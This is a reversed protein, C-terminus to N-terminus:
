VRVRGWGLGGVLGRIQHSITAAKQVAPVTYSGRLGAALDTGTVTADIMVEEEEEEERRLSASLSPNIGRRYQSHVGSICHCDLPLHRIM